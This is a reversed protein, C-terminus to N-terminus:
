SSRKSTQISKKYEKPTMGVQKKFAKNFASKSNFGAEYAVEIITQRDDENNKLLRKVEQIRYRNVFDYFNQNFSNNITQSLFRYPISLAEELDGLSLSPNLYPKESEMYGLLTKKYRKESTHSIASANYKNLQRSFESKNTIVLAILNILIFASISYLSTMYPCFAYIEFLHLIVLTNLQISWLVFSSAILLWIIKTDLNSKYGKRILLATPIFYALNHALMLSYNIIEQPYQWKIFNEIPFIKVAYFLTVVVFPLFHLLDKKTFGTANQFSKKVFFYLLPGILFTTQTGLFILKHYPIFHHEVGDTVSFTCFILVALCLFYLSLLGNKASVKKGNLWLQVSLFLSQFIAIISFVHILNLTM